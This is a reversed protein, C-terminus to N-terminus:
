NNCSLTLAWEEQKNKNSVKKTATSAGLCPLSSLKQFLHHFLPITHCKSWCTLFALNEKPRQVFHWHRVAFSWSHSKSFPREHPPIETYIVNPLWCSLGNVNTKDLNELMYKLQTLSNCLIDPYSRHLNM